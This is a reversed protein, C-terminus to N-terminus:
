SGVQEQKLVGLLFPLFNDNKYDFRDKANDTQNQPEYAASIVFRNQCFGLIPDSDLEM